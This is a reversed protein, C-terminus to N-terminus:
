NLRRDCDGKAAAKDIELQIKLLDNAISYNASLLQLLEQISGEEKQAAADINTKFREIHEITGNLLLTRTDRSWVGLTQIVSKETDSFHKGIGFTNEILFRRNQIKRADPPLKGKHGSAYPDAMYGMRTSIDYDFDGTKRALSYAPSANWIDELRHSLTDSHIVEPDNKDVTGLWLAPKKEAADCFAKTSEDFYAQIAALEAQYEEPMQKVAEQKLVICIEQNVRLLQEIQHLIPCAEFDTNIGYRTTNDYNLKFDADILARVPESYAELGKCLMSHPIYQHPLTKNM